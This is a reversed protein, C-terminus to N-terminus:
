QYMFKSLQLIMKRTIAIRLIYNLAIVTMQSYDENRCSTELFRHGLKETSMTIFKLDAHFIDEKQFVYAELRVKLKQIRLFQLEM